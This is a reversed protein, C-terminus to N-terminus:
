WWDGGAELLPVVIVDGGYRALLLVGGDGNRAGVLRERAGRVLRLSRWAKVEPGCHGTGSLRTDEV